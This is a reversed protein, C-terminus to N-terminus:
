DSRTGREVSQIQFEKKPVIIYSQVQTIGIGEILSVNLVYNYGNNLLLRFTYIKGEIEKFWLQVLLGGEMDFGQGM